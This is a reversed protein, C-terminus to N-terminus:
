HKKKKKKAKLKLTARKSNASGGTPTFTVQSKIKLKGKKRLAKKAKKTLRLRVAVKKPGGSKSSRKLLKGAKSAVAERGSSGAQTVVVTGAANVFVILFKGKVKGVKFANSPVPKPFEPAGMDVIPPDGVKGSVIRPLGFVDTPTSPIFANSGADITPSADTELVNGSGPGSSVLAPPACINGMGAFPTTASGIACVDSNAADVNAGDTSGFGGLDVGGLNGTLITNRLHLVDTTEGDAGAVAGTGSAQNGSVTSNVLTLNYGGSGVTCGAYVGAGEGGTGTGSPAGITNGAAVLNTAQSTQGSSTLCGGGNRTALGGGESSVSSSASGPLSNNVFRDGLSTINAGLTAEGGGDYSAGSGTISNGSFLNGSQSLSVPSTTVHRGTAVFLGGGGRFTGSGAPVTNGTFSNGTLSIAPAGGDCELDILAGGGGGGDAGTPGFGVGVASNNAFTSGSVTITPGTLTCPNPFTAFADIRLGGGDGTPNSNNSFTDNVFAYPNGVNQTLINVASSSAYNEFALNQLTLGNPQPSAGSTLAPNGVGTGDFGNTGSAAGQITLNATGPLIFSANTSTCLGTLVITDGAGAATLQTGFNSCDAQLTNASAGPVVIASAVLAAALGLWLRGTQILSHQNRGPTM